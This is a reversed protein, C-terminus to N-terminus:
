PEVGAFVNFYPYNKKADYGVESSDLIVKEGFYEIHLAEPIGKLNDSIIKCEKLQLLKLDKIEKETLLAYILYKQKTKKSQYMRIAGKLDIQSNAQKAMTVICKKEVDVESAPNASLKATAEAASLKSYDLEIWLGKEVACLSQAWFFIMFVFIIKKM